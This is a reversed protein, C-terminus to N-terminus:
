LTKVETLTFVTDGKRYNLFVCVCVRPKIQLAVAWIPVTSTELDFVNLRVCVTSSMSSDDAPRLPWKGLCCVVFV